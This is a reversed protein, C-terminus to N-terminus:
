ATQEHFFYLNTSKEGCDCKLFYYKKNPLPQIVSTVSTCHSLMCWDEERIWFKICIPVFYRQFFNIKFCKVLQPM